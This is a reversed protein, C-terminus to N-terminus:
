VESRPHEYGLPSRANCQKCDMNTHNTNDQICSVEESEENSELIGSQNNHIWIHINGVNPFWQKMKRSLSGNIAVLEDFSAGACFTRDGGSQLKIVKVKDDQGAHQITTALEALLNSPLSNSQPHFFTITSIGIENVTYNVYGNNESM